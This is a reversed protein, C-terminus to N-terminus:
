GGELMEAYLALTENVIIAEAFEREAARRAADGLRRRLDPDAALRCLADALPTVSEAPVLLGTEGDRCIERCGPVDTAILPRGCAAAELLSKPLGERYSPLAAIHCDAYAGPIDDSPGAVTIGERADWEKLIGPAISAPNADTPGILRLELDAGRARAEGVAAVLEGIGKDWLMRSVCSVIVPPTPPEGSPQFRATDVGSGRIIRIRARPLGIREEFLTADDGNQVIMRANEASYLRALLGTVMPRILRAKLGKGIFLFGLGAMAGIVSPVGTRFAAIAGYLVPKMAVHHVLDPRERRYLREIARLTTVDKLPNLGSRDFPIPAATFGEAEIRERHAAMRAAVIVRAGADRAARAVPLRHSWFYWDETVLFLITRGSLDPETM